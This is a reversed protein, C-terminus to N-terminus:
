ADERLEVQPVADLRDDEGVLHSEDGTRASRLADLLLRTMRGPPRDQAHREMALAGSVVSRLDAPRLDARVTGARQAKAMLVAMADWIDQKTRVSVDPPSGSAELADCIAKNFMAQDVIRALFAFFAEGPDQTEAPTRADEALQRLRDQIVTEFLAEKTPFHRYVTGAGVDARRAIEDLPVALGEAAFAAQAAELIRARNRRADARLPKPDTM